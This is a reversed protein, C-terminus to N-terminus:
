ADAIRKKTNNNKTFTKPSLPKQRFYNILSYVLPVVVWLRPVKQLIFILGDIVYVSSNM